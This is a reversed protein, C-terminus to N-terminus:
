WNFIGGLIGGFMGEDEEKEEKIEEQPETEEVVEDVEGGEEAKPVPEKLDREMWTMIHDAILASLNRIQLFTTDKSNNREAMRRKQEFTIVMSRIEKPLDDRNLGEEEMIKIHPYYKVDPSDSKEVPKRRLGKEPTSREDQEMEDLLENFRPDTIEAM